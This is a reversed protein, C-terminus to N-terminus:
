NIYKMKHKITDPLLSSRNTIRLLKFPLKNILMNYILTSSQSLIISGFKFKKFNSIIECNLRLRKIKSTNSKSKEYVYIKKAIKKHSIARVLSSGILGCGVILINKM